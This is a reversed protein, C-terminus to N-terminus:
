LRAAPALDASWFYHWTGDSGIGIRMPVPRGGADPRALDAFRVCTLMLRREDPTPDPPPKLAFAPWVFTRTPGATAQVYSQRLVARLIAVIEEGKGDFSLTKLEEIPDLGPPRKVGRQFLPRVENWDIPIRLAEIDRKACAELIKQRMANVRPPLLAPDASPESITEAPGRRPTPTKM